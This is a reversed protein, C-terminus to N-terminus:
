TSNGRNKFGKNTALFVITKFKINGKSNKYCYLLMNKSQIENHNAGDLECLSLFYKEGIDHTFSYAIAYAVRYWNEYTSTISINKKKLFKIINLLTKRDRQNNKGKPNNLVDKLSIYQTKIVEKKPESPQKHLFSTDKPEYIPFPIITSKFLM